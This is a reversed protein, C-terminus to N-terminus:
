ARARANLGAFAVIHAAMQADIDTNTPTLHRHIKDPPVHLDRWAHLFALPELEAHRATSAPFLGRTQQCGKGQGAAPPCLFIVNEYIHGTGKAPYAEFAVFGGGVAPMWQRGMAKRRVQHEADIRAPGGLEGGRGGERGGGRGGRGSGAGGVSKVIDRWYIDTESPESQESSTSAGPDSKNGVLLKCTGESAYRNM